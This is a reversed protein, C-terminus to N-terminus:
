QLLWLSLNGVKGALRSLAVALLGSILVEGSLM